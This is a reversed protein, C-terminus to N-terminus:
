GYRFIYLHIVLLALGVGSVMGEALALHANFLRPRRYPQLYVTSAILYVLGRMEVEKDELFSYYDVLMTLNAYGRGEM